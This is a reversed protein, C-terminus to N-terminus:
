RAVSKNQFKRIARAMLLLVVLPLVIWFAMRGPAFKLAFIFDDIHNQRNVAFCVSLTCILLMFQRNSYRFFDRRM